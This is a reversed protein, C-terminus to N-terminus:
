RRKGVLITAFGLLVITAPEPIVAASTVHGMVGFGIAPGTGGEGRGGGSGAGFQLLSTEWDGLVPATTPLAASPIASASYDRLGWSIHGVPTSDFLPLNTYSIVSYADVSAYHNVIEILFNTNAPDTMFDFGGASLSIGYPPNFYHYRAVFPSESGWLWDMDPTDTDYTYTGTILDGVKIRGNLYGGAEVIDDVVAEIKITILAGSAPLSCFVAAVGILVIARKM